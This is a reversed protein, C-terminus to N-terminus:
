VTEASVGLAEERERERGGGGEEERGGESGGERGRQVCACVCPVFAELNRSILGRPLFKPEAVMVM